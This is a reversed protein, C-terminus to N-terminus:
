ISMMHYHVGQLNAPQVHCVGEVEEVDSKHVKELQPLIKKNAEAPGSNTSRWCPTEM